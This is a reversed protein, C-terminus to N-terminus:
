RRTEAWQGRPSHAHALADYLEFKNGGGRALAALGYRIADQWRELKVCNVAANGWGNAIESHTHAIQLCIDLAEQYRGQEHLVRMQQFAADVQLPIQSEHVLLSNESSATIQTNQTASSGLLRVQATGQELWQAYHKPIHQVKVIGEKVTGPYACILKEQTQGNDLKQIGYLGWTVESGNLLNTKITIVSSSETRGVHFGESKQENPFPAAGMFGFMSDHQMLSTRAYPWVYQRLFHQDAFRRSDLPESMFRGMLDQFPPLSGAVASWLGALILETHSGWDRMMHFRKGSALWQEVAGAERSSIVSDADRFLIRHAQPNGLALWRWMPGAWQAATGEVQVIQAGSARLRNIVNEPVSADVYFRCVWHPYINPQEQANLIAPECYKCDRGFLLLAIINRERTQASPLPPMPAPEPLPIVPEGSFRRARINLAQLGYHRAEEWHGLIGHVQALADYPAFNNADQALATQANRIADQWRALYICDSAADIWMLTDVWDPYTREIRLYIDLTEQYRGQGRLVMMREIAADVQLQAQSEHQVASAKM